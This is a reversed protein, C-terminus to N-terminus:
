ERPATIEIETIEDPPPGTRVGAAGAEHAVIRLRAWCWDIGPLEISEVRLVSKGRPTAREWCRQLDTSVAVPLLALLFEGTGGEPEGGLGDVPKSDEWQSAAPVPFLKLPKANRGFWLLGMEVREEGALKWRRVLAVDWQDTLPDHLAIADGVKPDSGKGAPSVVRCGSVSQDRVIWLVTTRRDPEDSSWGRKVGSDSGGMALGSGTQPSTRREIKNAAPAPTAQDLARLKAAIAPWGAIVEVRRDLVAREARETFGKVAWQTILYGVLDIQQRLRRQEVENAAAQLREELRTLSSTLPEALVTSDFLFREPGGGLLAV